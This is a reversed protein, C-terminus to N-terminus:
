EDDEWDWYIASYIGCRKDIALQFLTILNQIGRHLSNIWVEDKTSLFASNLYKRNELVDVLTKQLKKKFRDCEAISLWGGQNYSQLPRIWFWYPDKHEIVEKKAIKKGLLGATPYGHILLNVDGEPWGLRELNESLIRWDYGLCVPAPELNKAMLVFLWLGLICNKYSSKEVEQVEPLPLVKGYGYNTFFSQYRPSTAIKEVKERLIQIYGMDLTVAIARAEVQYNQYDFLLNALYWMEDEANGKLKIDPRAQRLMPVVGKSNMGRQDSGRFHM